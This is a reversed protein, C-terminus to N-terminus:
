SGAHTRSFQQGPGDAVPDGAALEPQSEAVHVDSAAPLSAPKTAASGNGAESGAEAPEGVLDHFLARYDIM